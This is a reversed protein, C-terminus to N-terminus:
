FEIEFKDCEWLSLKTIAKVNIYLAFSKPKDRSEYTFYLTMKKKIYLRKM